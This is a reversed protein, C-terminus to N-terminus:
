HARRLKTKGATVTVAVRDTSSFGTGAVRVPSQSALWVRAKLVAPTPVAASPVVAAIVVAASVTIILRTMVMLAYVQELPVRRRGERFRTPIGQGADYRLHAFFRQKGIFRKADSASRRRTM